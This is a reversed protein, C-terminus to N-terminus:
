SIKYLFNQTTEFEKILGARDKQLILKALRNYTNALTAITQCREETALMIDVCLNPNQAFLRQVIDVEQRYSPSSMSLSRDIDIEQQSLFVGLSFRSFHQTAQVIVMISDHEEPTSFILEGGQNQMLKLLWEFSDDKRGPCVIIKQESFSKVAPGFMPHLGMVAGCHHELMAQVPQTKISTIDCLATTPNLYNATRKIVDVTYEIPVSILVLDANNLLKDASKWDDNGLISIYHGASSLKESFLKGMRGNGGIITVKQPKASCDQTFSPNKNKRINRDFSSPPKNQFNQTYTSLESETLLSSITFRFQEILSQCTQKLKDSILHM